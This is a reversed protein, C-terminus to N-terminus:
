KELVFQKLEQSYISNHLILNKLKEAKKMDIIQYALFLAKLRFEKEEIHFNNLLYLMLEINDTNYAVRVAEANLLYNQNQKLIQEIDKRNSLSNKYKKFNIERQRFVKKYLYNVDLKEKAINAIYLADEFRNENLSKNIEKTLFKLYKKNILESKTKDNIFIYQMSDFANGIIALNETEIINDFNTIIKKELETTNEDKTRKLYVEEIEAINLSNQVVAKVFPSYHKNKLIADFKGIANHLRVDDEKKTDFYLQLEYIATQFYSEKDDHLEKEIKKVRGDLAIITDFAKQINQANVGVQEELMAIEQKNKLIANANMETAKGLEEIQYAMYMDAAVQAAVGLVPITSAASLAGMKAIVKGGGYKSTKLALKTFNRSASKSVKSARGAEIFSKKQNDMSETYFGLLKKEFSSKPNKPDFTLDTLKSRSGNARSIRIKNDGIDEIHEITMKLKGDALKTFGFYRKKVSGNEVYKRIEKYYNKYKPDGKEILADIKKLSWKKSMQMAGDTTKEIGSQSIAMEGNKMSPLGKGKFKSEVFMVDKVVGDKIKVFLGDIGNSNVEGPLQRWGSNKFYKGMFEEAVNGNFKSRNAINNFNLDTAM